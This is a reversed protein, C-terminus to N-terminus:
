PFRSCLVIKILLMQTFTFYNQNFGLKYIILTQLHCGRGALPVGSGVPTGREYSVPLSHGEKPDRPQRVRRDGGGRGGAGRTWGGARWFLNRVGRWRLSKVCKCVHAM